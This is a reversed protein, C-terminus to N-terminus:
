GTTATRKLQDEGDIPIGARLSHRMCRRSIPLSTMTASAAMPMNASARVKPMTSVKLRVTFLLLPVAVATAMRGDVAFAVTFEVSFAVEAAVDLTVDAAVAPAVAADVAVAMLAAVTVFGAVAAGVCAAVRAAVVVAVAVMVDVFVFVGVTVSVGVGLSVGVAVKVRTGSNGATVDPGGTGESGGGVPMKGVFADTTVATGNGGSGPVVTASTVGPPVGQVKRLPQTTYVTCCPSVSKLMLRYAPTVNASSCCAFQM